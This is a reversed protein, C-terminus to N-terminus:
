EPLEDPSVANRSKAIIKKLRQIEFFSLFVYSLMGTSFVNKGIPHHWIILLIGAIMALYTLKLLMDMLQNQRERTM